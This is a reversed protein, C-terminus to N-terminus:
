VCSVMRESADSETMSDSNEHRGKEVNQDPERPKLINGFADGYDKEEEAIVLNEGVGSIERRKRLKELIWCM